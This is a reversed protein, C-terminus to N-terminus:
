LKKGLAVYQFYKDFFKNATDFSIRWVKKGNEEHIYQTFEPDNFAEKKVLAGDREVIHDKFDFFVEVSGEKPFTDRVEEEHSSAYQYGNKVFWETVNQQMSRAFLFNCEILNNKKLIKIYDEAKNLFSSGSIGDTATQAIRHKIDYGKGITSSDSSRFILETPAYNQGEKRLDFFIEQNQNEATAVKLITYIYEGFKQEYIRYMKENPIGFPNETEVPKNFKEVVEAENFPALFEQKLRAAGENRQPFQNPQFTM